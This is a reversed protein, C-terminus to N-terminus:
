ISAPLHGYHWYMVAVLALTNCLITIHINSRQTQSFSLLSIIPFCWYSLLPIDGRSTSSTHLRILQSLSFLCWQLSRCPFHYRRILHPSQNSCPMSPTHIAVISCKVQSYLSAFTESAPFCHSISIFSPTSVQITMLTSFILCHTVDSSQKQKTKTKIAHTICLLATLQSLCVPKLVTFFFHPLQSSYSLSAVLFM